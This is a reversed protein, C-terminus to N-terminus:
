FPAEKPPPLTIETEAVVTPAQKRVHGLVAPDLKDLHALLRHVRVGERVYRGMFEKVLAAHNNVVDESWRRYVLTARVKVAQLSNVLFMHEHRPERPQLTTDSAVRFAATPDTTPVGARDVYTLRYERRDTMVVNGAADLALLELAVEPATANGTPFSHGAGVNEVTAVVEHGAFHRNVHLDLTATTKVFEVNGGGPFTHRHLTREPAGAAATGTYAAMHCAPCGIGEAAYPSRAWEAYTWDIPLANTPWLSMHCAGCLESQGSHLDSKVTAHFPSVAVVEGEPVVTDATGYFPGRKPGTPDWQINGPADDAWAKAATHCVDCSVGEQSMAQTLDLDPTPGWVAAPAHCHLCQAVDKDPAGRIDLSTRYLGILFASLASSRGMGSAKWEEYHQAHCGGCTASPTLKSPDLDAYADQNPFTLPAKWAPDAPAWGQYTMALAGMAGALGAAGLILPTRPRTAM